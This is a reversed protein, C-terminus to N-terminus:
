LRAKHLRSAPIPENGDYEPHYSPTAGLAINYYIGKITVPLGSPVHVLPVQGSYVKKIFEPNAFSNDTDDEM